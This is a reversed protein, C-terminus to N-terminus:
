VTTLGIEACGQHLTDLDFADIPSVVGPTLGGYTALRHAAWAM